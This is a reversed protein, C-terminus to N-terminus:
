VLSPFLRCWHPSSGVGVPPLTFVPRMRRKCWRSFASVDMVFLMLALRPFRAGLKETFLPLALKIQLVWQISRVGLECLARLKTKDDSQSSLPSRTLRLLLNQLKRLCTSREWRYDRPTTKTERLSASSFAPPDRGTAVSHRSDFTPYRRDHPPM